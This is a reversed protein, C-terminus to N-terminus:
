LQWDHATQGGITEETGELEAKEEGHDEAEAGDEQHGHWKVTIGDVGEDANANGKWAQGKVEEDDPHWFVFSRM